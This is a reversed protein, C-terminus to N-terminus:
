ASAVRIREYIVSFNGGTSDFAGGTSNGIAIAWKGPLYGFAAAVSVPNSTYSTANAVMNLIGIIRLNTPSTLTLAGASGAYGEPWTTGGDASGIAYIIATGTSTVGSAGSKLKVQLAADFDQNTTNDVAALAYTSGSALSALGTATIANNNNLLENSTTM